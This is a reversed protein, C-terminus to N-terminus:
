QFIKESTRKKKRDSGIVATWGAARMRRIAALKLSNRPSENAAPSLLDIGDWSDTQAELCTSGNGWLAPKEASPPTKVRYALSKKNAELEADKEKVMRDCQGQHKDMLALVDAIKHQCKLGADEKEKIAQAASVKLERVEKELEASVASKAELDQRLRQLEDDKLRQLNQSEEYLSNILVESKESKETVETEVAKISKEKEKVEEQLNEFLEDKLSSILVDKKMAQENAERTSEELQQRRKETEHLDGITTQLQNEKDKLKAQLVAIEEENMKHEQQYKEKLDEHLLLEEKVRHMQQQNDEAKVRLSDFAEILKKISDTNEVFLQHTEERESELLHMKETSRQVTENLISCLTSTTNNKNRLDENESFQELLKTSLRENDFQLERIAKRQSEITKTHDQLRRDKQIIDSDVKVKWCKMKEVEDFLKSYVQGSTYNNEPKEM